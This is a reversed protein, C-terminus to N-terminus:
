AGDDIGGGPVRDDACCGRVIRELGALLLAARVCGGALAIIGDTQAAAMLVLKRPFEAPDLKARPRFISEDLGDALFDDDLYIVHPRQPRAADDVEILPRHAM